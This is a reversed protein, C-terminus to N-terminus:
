YSTVITSEFLSQVKASFSQPNTRVMQRTTMKSPGVNEANAGADLLMQIINWRDSVIDYDGVARDLATNGFADTANPDAGLALMQKLADAQEVTGVGSVAARVAFHLAPWRWSETMKANVNAQRDLLFKAIGPHGCQLAYMLPTKGAFIQKGTGLAELAKPQEAITQSVFGLDNDEIAQFLEKVKKKTFTDGTM